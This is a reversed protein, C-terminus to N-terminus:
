LGEPRRIGVQALKAWDAMNYEQKWKRVTSETVGVLAALKPVSIGTEALWAEIAATQRGQMIERTKEATARKRESWTLNDGRPRGPKRREETKKAYQARSAQKKEERHKLYYERQYEQRNRERQKPPPPPAGRYISNDITSCRAGKIYRECNQGADCGRRQGTVLIYNCVVLDGSITSGYICGRCKKSSVSM